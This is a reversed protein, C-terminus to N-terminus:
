GRQPKPKNVSLYNTTKQKQLEIKYHIMERIKKKETKAATSISNKNTMETKKLNPEQCDNRNNKLNPTRNIPKISTNHVVHTKILSQYSIGSRFNPKM